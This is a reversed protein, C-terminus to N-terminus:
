IPTGKNQSVGMYHLIVGKQTYYRTDPHIMKSPEVVCFRSEGIAQM